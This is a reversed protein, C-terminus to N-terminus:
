IKFKYLEFAEPVSIVPIGLVIAKKLKGTVHNPNEAIVMITTKKVSDGVSIQYEDMLYKQFKANRFGTFVVEGKTEIKKIVKVRQILFELIKRNEDVGQLVTTALHPTLGDKLMTDISEDINLSMELLEHIYYINTIKKSNKPGLSKIGVCSLIQDESLQL